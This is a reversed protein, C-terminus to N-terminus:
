IKRLRGFLFKNEFPKSDTANKALSPEAEKAPLSYEPTDGRFVFPIKSIAPLFNIGTNGDSEIIGARNQSPHIHSASISRRITKSIAADSVENGFFEVSMWFEADFKAMAEEKPLRKEAFASWKGSYICSLDGGAHGPCLVLFSFLDLDLETDSVVSKNLLRRAHLLRDQHIIEQCRWGDSTMAICKLDDQYIIELKAAGLEISAYSEMSMVVSSEPVANDTHHPTTEIPNLNTYNRIGPSVPSLRPSERRLEEAFENSGYYYFDAEGWLKLSYASLSNHSWNGKVPSSPASVPRSQTGAASQGSTQTNGISLSSTEDDIAIASQYDVVINEFHQNDKQSGYMSLWDLFLANNYITKGWHTSCLMLPMLKIPTQVDAMNLQDLNTLLDIGGLPIDKRCRGFRHFAACPASRTKASKLNSLAEDFSIVRRGLRPNNVDHPNKLASLLSSKLISLTPM